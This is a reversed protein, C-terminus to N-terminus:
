NETEGFSDGSMMGQSDHKKLIKRAKPDGMQSATRFDRLAKTKQGAKMYVNGRNFYYGSNEPDLEIAETYSQISEELRDLASLALGRNNYAM